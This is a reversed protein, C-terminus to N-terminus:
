LEDKKGKMNLFAEVMNKANQLIEERYRWFEKGTKEASISMEEDKEKIRKIVDIKHRGDGAFLKDKYYRPLGYHVGNKGVVYERRRLKNRNDKIYQAGIGPKLSMLAFEPEIGLEAYHEKGTKGTLKKMTYKAVYCASDESVEGVFCQGNPWENMECWFGGKKPIYHKNRFILNDSGVGFLILHYHPRNSKEGYEGSAYYRFPAALAKRVRMIFLKLARKSISGSSPLHEDDYTITLFCNSEHYHTENMIRISWEKAKNLRCAKCQGCPTWRLQGFKNKRLIQFPCIM